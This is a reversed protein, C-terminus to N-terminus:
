GRAAELSLQVIQGAPINEKLPALDHMRHGAPLKEELAPLPLQSSQSEPVYESMPPSHKWHGPTLKLLFLPEVEKFSQEAMRVLTSLLTTTLIPM